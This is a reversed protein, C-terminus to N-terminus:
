PYTRELLAYTATMEPTVSFLGWNREDESDWHALALRKGAAYQVMSGSDTFIGAKATFPEGFAYYLRYVQGSNQIMGDLTSIRGATFDERLTEELEEMFWSPFASRDRATKEPYSTYELVFSGDEKDVHTMAELANLPLLSDAYEESTLISRELAKCEELIAQSQATPKSAYRYYYRDRSNQGPAKYFYLTLANEWSYANRGPLYPYQSAREVEIWKEQLRRIKELNDGQVVAPHLEGEEAPKWEPSDLDTVRWQDLYIDSFEQLSSVSAGQLSSQFFESLEMRPGLDLSAPAMGRYELGMGTSIVGLLALTIGASAALPQWHRHLRKLSRRYVLETLVWMGALALVMAGLTLPIGKDGLSRDFVICCMWNGAAISVAVATEVRLFLEMGKCRGPLGLDESPRRCYILAGAGALLVAFIGMWLHMYGIRDQQFSFYLAVPPSGARRLFHFFRLDTGNGCPVTAGILNDLYVVMLPWCGTLVLSTLGYEFYTGSAVAALTFFTLAAAGQVALVTLTSLFFLPNFGSFPACLQARVWLGPLLPLWLSTLSALLSGLFFAGREVPLAHLFDARPRHFCAGFHLAPLLFSLVLILISLPLFYDTVMHWPPFLCLGTFLVCYILTVLLGRRFQWAFVTWLVHSSRDSSTTSTM